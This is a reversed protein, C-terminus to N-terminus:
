AALTAAGARGPDACVEHVLQRLWRNGPDLHFREHWYQMVTFPPIPVPCPHVDLGSMQALTYGTLSPVTAILDSGSIMAPLGLYVPIEVCVKRQVQHRAMAATLMAHGTGHPIDVHEAEAYLDVGFRSRIIPHEPSVLCVWSQDFLAQQYFGTELTPIYGLSLDAEGSALLSSANGDLKVAELRVQPAKRRLLALIRPLLTLIAGDSLCVRFRRSAARPDFADPERTLAYMAALASRVLPMMTEVRPTPQMGAPTRVFLPDGTLERLAGLWISMTPASQGLLEATHSLRRTSYLVDLFRLYKVEVLPAEHLAGPPAASAPISGM